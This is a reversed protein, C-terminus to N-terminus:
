AKDGCKSNYLQFVENLYNNNNRIEKRLQSIKMDVMAFAQPCDSVLAKIDDHDYDKELHQKV